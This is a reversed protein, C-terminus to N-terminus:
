DWVDPLVGDMTGGDRRDVIVCAIGAAKAGAEDLEPVDGVHLAEEPPVGLRRLARLFIEPAPKEIGELHSVAITDFRSALGTVAGVAVKLAVIVNWGTLAPLDM